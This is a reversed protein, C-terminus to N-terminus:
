PRDKFIRGLEDEEMNTARKRNRAAQSMPEPNEPQKKWTSINIFRIKDDQILINHANLGTNLLYGKQHVAQLATLTAKEAQVKELKGSNQLSQISEGAYRMVMALIRDRVVTPEGLDNITEDEFDFAFIGHIRPLYKQLGPDLAKYLARERCLAAKEFIGKAFKVVLGKSHKMDKGTAKCAKMLDFKWARLTGPFAVPAMLNWEPSSENQKGALRTRAAEDTDKGDLKIFPRATQKSHFGYPITIQFSNVEDLELFLELDIKQGTLPKRQVKVGNYELSDHDYNFTYLPYKDEDKPSQTHWEDLIKARALTDKYAALFLGVTMRNYTPSKHKHATSILNSLYLTKSQRHRIGIYEFNGAHFILFTTDNMVAEAWAQQVIFCAKERDTLNILPMQSTGRTSSSGTASSWYESTAEDDPGTKRGTVSVRLRSMHKTSATCEAGQIDTGNRESLDEFAGPTGCLRWVFGKELALNGIEEMVAKSGAFLSKMEWVACHQLHYNGILKIDLRDAPDLSDLTDLRDEPDLSDLTDLNNAVPLVASLFGDAKAHSQRIESSTNWKLISKEFDQLGFLLTSAIRSCPTGTSLFYNMNVSEENYVASTMSQNSHATPVSPGDGALDINRVGNRLNRDCTEALKQALDDVMVIQKLRLEPHLHLDFFAPKRTATSKGTFPKNEVPKPNGDLFFGLKLIIDEKTLNFASQQSSSEQTSNEVSADEELPYSSMFTPQQSEATTQITGTIPSPSAGVPSAYKYKQSSHCRLLM